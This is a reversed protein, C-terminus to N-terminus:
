VNIIENVINLCTDAAMLATKRFEEAGGSISDSVTKILMCPIKNKDCTIVIGAAEMEVIDANFTKHLNQKQEKTAIFKDGSACVVKELDPQIKLASEILEKNLPIRIDPYSLYRGVECNDVTSTDFDYHIVSEVICTKIVTMQPTLGGVIGFNIIMDVHFYDILFQTGAAAAIQGAGCSIVYLEGLHLQYKYAKYGICNIEELLDGYHKIVSSIEVAVIMGVRKM